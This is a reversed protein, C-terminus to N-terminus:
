TRAWIRWLQRRNGRRLRRFALIASILILAGGLLQVPELRDGLFLFSWLVAFLTQLPTLLSTQSGGIRSVSEFQLLRAMYTGVIALLLMLSWGGIGSSNWPMDHFAWYFFVGVTTAVLMYFIVAQADYKTLYWQLLVVQFAFFLLSLSILGIGTLSVSGSPGILLYVGVIALVLRVAHRYTLREGRLALLTLVVLPSLSLLMAAMSSELYTLGIFYLVMGVATSAGAGLSILIGRRPLKLRKPNTVAITITMLTAAILSRGMLLGISDMGLNIAAKAVPTAISFALMGALALAWGFWVTRTPSTATDQAHDFSAGTVAM